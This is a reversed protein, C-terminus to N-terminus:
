QFQRVTSYFKYSSMNLGIAEPPRVPAKRATRDPGITIIIKETIDKNSQDESM